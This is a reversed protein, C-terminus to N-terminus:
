KAGSKARLKAAVRAKDGTDHIWVNLFGVAVITVLTVGVLAAVTSRAADSGPTVGSEALILGSVAIGLIMGLIAGNGFRKWRASELMDNRPNAISWILAMMALVVLVSLQGLHLVYYAILAVAAVLASSVLVRPMSAGVSRDEMEAVLTEIEDRRNSTNDM